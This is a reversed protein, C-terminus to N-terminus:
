ISHSHKIKIKRGYISRKLVGIQEQYILKTTMIANGNFGKVENFIRQDDTAVLLHDLVNACNEYVHQIM